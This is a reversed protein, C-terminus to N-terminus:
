EYKYAGITWFASEPRTNGLIDMIISGYGPDNFINLGHNIARNGVKLQYDNWPDSDTGEPDIFITILDTITDTNPYTINENVTGTTVGVLEIDVEEDPSNDDIDVSGNDYYLFTTASPNVNFFLNNRLEAPSHLSDTEFYSYCTNGVGKTLIINNILKPESRYTSSGRAYLGYSKGVPAGGAIITNNVFIPSSGYLDVAKSTVNIGDTDGSIIVNNKYEITQNNMVAWIGISDSSTSHAAQIINRELKTYSGNVRMGYSDSITIGVPTIINESVEISADVEGSGLLEIGTVTDNGSSSLQITNRKILADPTYGAVYIVTHNGNGTNGYFTNNQISFSADEIYISKVFSSTFETGQFVSDTLNLECNEMITISYLQCLTADRYMFDSQHINVTAASEAYLGYIDSNDANGIEMLVNEMNLESQKILIGINTFGSNPIIDYIECNNLFVQSNLEIALAVNDGDSANGYIIHNYELYVNVSGSIFIAKSQATDDGYIYFGKMLTEQAGSIFVIGNINTNQIKTPYNQWNETWQEPEYGGLLQVGEPIVFSEEYVEDSGSKYAVYITDQNFQIAAELGAKITKYPKNKTGKEETTSNGWVYIAELPEFWHIPEEEEMVDTQIKWYHTISDSVLFTYHTKDLTTTFLITHFDPDSSVALTYSSVGSKNEWILPVEMATQMGNVPSIVKPATTDPPTGFGYFSQSYGSTPIPNYGTGKINQIHLTYKKGPFQKATTLILRTKNILIVHVVELIDGESYITYHQINNVSEFDLAKNFAIELTIADTAEVNLIEPPVHDLFEGNLLFQPPEKHCTFFFLLSVLSLGITLWIKTKLYRVGIWKM